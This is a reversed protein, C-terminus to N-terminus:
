NASPVREASDIILIEVERRVPRLKLGLQEEIATFLSPPAGAVNPGDAVAEDPTWDLTFDYLGALGTADVIPRDTQRALVEGFRTMSARPVTLHGRGNNTPGGSQEASEKLKSGGKSLTLEYVPLLRKERHLKLRFRDTLLAQLMPRLANTGIPAKAQIDYRVSDIWGPGRVQFDNVGWAIRIYNDLALNTGNFTGDRWEWGSYGNMSNDIRVTAVEFEQASASVALLLAV